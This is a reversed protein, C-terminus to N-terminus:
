IWRQPNEIIVICDKDLIPVGIKDLNDRVYDYDLSFKESLHSILNEKQKKSILNLDLFYAKELKGNVKIIQPIPSIINITDTGFVKLFEKKREKDKIVVKFDKGM